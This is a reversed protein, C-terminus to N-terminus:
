KGTSFHWHSAVVETQRRHPLQHDSLRGPQLSPWLSQGASLWGGHELPLSCQRHGPSSHQSLDVELLDCWRDNHSGEDQEEDWHQFDAPDKGSFVRLVSTLTSQVQAWFMIHYCFSYVINLTWYFVRNVLTVVCLM